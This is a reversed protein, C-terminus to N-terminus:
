SWSRLFCASSLLHLNQRAWVESGQREGGVRTDHRCRQVRRWHQRKRSRPALAVLVMLAVTSGGLRMHFRKMM